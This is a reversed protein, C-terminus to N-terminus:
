EIILTNDDPYKLRLLCAFRPWTKPTVITVGLRKRYDDLRMALRNMPLQHPLATLMKFVMGISVAPHNKLATRLITVIAPREQDTPDNMFRDLERRVGSDERSVYTQYLWNLFAAWEHITVDGKRQRKRFEGIDM